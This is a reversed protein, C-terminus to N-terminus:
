PLGAKARELILHCAVPQPIGLAELAETVWATRLKGAAVGARARRMAPSCHLPGSLTHSGIYSWSTREGALDVRHLEVTWEDDPDTMYFATTPEDLCATLTGGRNLLHDPVEVQM